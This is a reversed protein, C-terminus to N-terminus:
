IMNTRIPNTNMLKIQFNANKNQYNLKNKKLKTFMHHIEMLMNSNMLLLKSFKEM